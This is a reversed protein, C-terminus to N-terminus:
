PRSPESPRLVADEDRSVMALAEATTLEEPYERDRSDTYCHVCHLNCRRTSTWVVVPRKDESYHLLHSPLRSSHRQYRLVDAAEVRNTLLRSLSLM